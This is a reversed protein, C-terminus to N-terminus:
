LRSNSLWRYKPRMCDSIQTFLTLMTWMTWM